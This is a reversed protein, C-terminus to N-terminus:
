VSASRLAQLCESVPIGSCPPLTPARGGWVTCLPRFHGKLENEFVKKFCLTKYQIKDSFIQIVVPDESDFQHM